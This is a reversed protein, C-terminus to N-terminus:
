LVPDSSPLNQEVFTEVLKKLALQHSRTLVLIIVFRVAGSDHTFLFTTSSHRHCSIETVNRKINSVTMIKILLMWWCWNFICHRSKMMTTYHSKNGNYLRFYLQNQRFYAMELIGSCIFDSRILEPLKLVTWM